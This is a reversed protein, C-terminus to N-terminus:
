WSWRSPRASGAGGYCRALAASRAAAHSSEAGNSAGNGSHHQLWAANAAVTTPGSVRFRGASALRDVAASTMVTPIADVRPQSVRYVYAWGSGSPAEFHAVPDLGVERGHKQLWLALGIPGFRHPGTLALYDAQRLRATVRNRPMSTYDRRTADVWFASALRPPEHTEDFPLRRITADGELRAWLQADFKFSMLVAPQGPRASLFRGLKADLDSGASATIKTRAQATAVPVIAVLGIVATIALVPRPARSPAWRVVSALLDAAAVGLAICSLLTIPVFQRIGYHAEWAILSAPVFALGALVLLRARPDNRRRIAVLLWAAISLAILLQASLNLRFDRPLNSAAANRLGEFPFIQDAVVLVTIFWWVVTSAFGLAYRAVLRRWESNPVKGLYALPLVILPASTEKILLTVGALVGGILMRRPSPKDVVLLLVMLSCILAVEVRTSPVTSWLVPTMLIVLGTAVAGPGRALRFGFVIATVLAATALSWGLLRPGTFPDGGVLRSAGGAM